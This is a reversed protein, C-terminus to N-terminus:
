TYMYKYQGSALADPGDSDHAQGAQMGCGISVNDPLNNGGDDDDYYSNVDDSLDADGDCDCDEPWLDEELQITNNFLLDLATMKAIDRFYEMDDGLHWCPGLESCTTTVHYCCCRDDDCWGSVIRTCSTIKPM